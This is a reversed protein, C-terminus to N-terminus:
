RIWSTAIHIQRDITSGRTRNPRVASGRPLRPAPESRRWATDPKGDAGVREPAPLLHAVRVPGPLGDDGVAIVALADLRHLALPALEESPLDEDTFRTAVFRLTCFRM